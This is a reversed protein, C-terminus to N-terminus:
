GGTGNGARRNAAEELQGLSPEFQRMWDHAGDCQPVGEAPRWVVPHRRRDKCRASSRSSLTASPPLMEDCVDGIRTRMVPVIIPWPHSAGEPQRQHPQLSELNLFTFMQNLEGSQTPIYFLNDVAAIPITMGGRGAWANMVAAYGLNSSVTFALADASALLSLDRYVGHMDSQTPDGATLHMIRPAGSANLNSLRHVEEFGAESDTAIFLADLHPDLGLLAEVYEQLDHVDAEVGKDGARYHIGGVRMGPLWGLSAKAAQVAAVVTPLPRTLYATMQAHWFALGLPPAAFEPPAAYMLTGRGPPFVQAGARDLWSTAGWNCQIVDSTPTLDKVTCRSWPHALKCHGKHCDPGDADVFTRDLLWAMTLCGRYHLLRSGFGSLPTSTQSSCLLFRARACDPPHQLAHLRAQVRRAAADWCPAPLTLKKEPAPQTAAISASDFLSASPLAGTSWQSGAFFALVGLVVISAANQLRKSNM